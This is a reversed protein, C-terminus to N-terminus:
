QQVMFNGLHFLSAEDNYISTHTNTYILFPKRTVVQGGLIERVSIFFDASIHLTNRIAQDVGRIQQTTSM